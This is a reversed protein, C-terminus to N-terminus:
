KPRHYKCLISDVENADQIIEGCTKCKPLIFMNVESLWEHQRFQLPVHHSEGMEIILERAEALLRETSETFKWLLLDDDHDPRAPISFRGVEKNGCPVSRHFHSNVLRSICERAETPTPTRGTLESM